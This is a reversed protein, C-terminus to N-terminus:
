PSTLCEQVPTLAEAAAAQDQQFTAKVLAHYVEATVKEKYCDLAAGELSAAEKLFLEIDVCETFADAAGEAAEEDFKIEEIGDQVELDDDLVGAEKLSDVGVKDVVKDGFCEADDDTIASDGESMSKAINDSALSDDGSSGCATLALLAVAILAVTKNV